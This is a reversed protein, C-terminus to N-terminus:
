TRRYYVENNRLDQKLRSISTNRDIVLCEIGAIEAFDEMQEVSVNQSYCTHHAGGALIWGTAATPLDPDPQWMMRAVPLRPLDEEPEIGTVTNILLRFRHGLDIISANIAPGPRGNFVLRVPDEKGGISLPHVECSPRTESISPCIELMHAGLVQMNGPQFHYTYDEMFSNGGELGRSMVKLTRVLASTKWDGEAGFGYGDAMLRQIALGPLQRLGHLNEFTDTLAQYNGAVLFTRLGAEIRAAETLSSRHAGNKQLGPSLDYSDEYEQVLDDIQSATVSRISETLDGLGYGNVSYGFQIQATVKDGETVAVDRMNDGFRVIRMSQSDAWAAAVRSWSGIQSIVAPNQWHGAIVKRAMSLRTAIYGYERGGHASQNLNMFDMDIQSWPIDRNYQTHLHLLPKALIKLGAIWMKAPSFTHMWSIVGICRPENNVERFFKLIQESETLVGKYSVLVPTEERSSLHHSIEAAHDNVKQLTQPGYLHQSGTVFWLEFQPFIQKM